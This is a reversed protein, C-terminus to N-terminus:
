TGSQRIGSVGRPHAADHGFHKSKREVLHANKDVMHAAAIKM